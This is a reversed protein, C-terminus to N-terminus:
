PAGIRRRVAEGLLALSLPKLLVDAGGLGSRRDATVLIVPISRLEPDAAQEERFRWGDMGPMSLDLLILDPRPAGQARLLALAAAGDAALLAGHGEDALFEGVTARLSEDDDVVLVTAVRANATPTGRARRAAPAPAPGPAARRGGGDRMWAEVESLKLKWLKGIKQAPLGRQEIWRYVSDKRVGLHAAVEDVSVWPEAM